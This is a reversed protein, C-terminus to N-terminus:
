GRIGVKGVMFNTTSFTIYRKDLKFSPLYYTYQIEGDPEIWITIVDRYNICCQYKNKQSYKQMMIIADAEPTDAPIKLDRYCGAMLRVIGAKPYRPVQLVKRYEEQDVRVTFFIMEPEASIARLYVRPVERNLNDWEKRRLCFKEFDRYGCFYMLERIKIRNSDSNGYGASKQHLYTRTHFLRTYDEIRNIARASFPLIEKNM